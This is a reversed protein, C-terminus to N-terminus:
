CNTISYNYKMNGSKRKVEKRSLFILIVVGHFKTVDHRVVVAPFVAGNQVHHHIM